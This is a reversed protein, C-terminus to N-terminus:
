DIVGTIMSPKEKQEKTLGGIAFMGEMKQGFNEVGSETVKSMTEFGKKHITLM